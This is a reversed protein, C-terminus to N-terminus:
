KVEVVLYGGSECHWESGMKLCTEGKSPKYSSGQTHSTRVDLYYLGKEPPKCDLTIKEGKSVYKHVSCTTIYETEGYEPDIVKELEVDDIAVDFPMKDFYIVFHEGDWEANAHFRKDLFSSKPTSTCGAALLM